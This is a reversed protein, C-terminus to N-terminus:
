GAVGTRKMAVLILKAGMPDDRLFIQQKRNNNAKQVITLLDIAGPYIAKLRM